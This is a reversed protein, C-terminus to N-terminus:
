LRVSRWPMVKAYQQLYVGAPKAIAARIPVITLADFLNKLILHETARAGAWLEAVSAPSCLIPVESTSLDVWRSVIGLDRNRSVEILLDSDIVVVV